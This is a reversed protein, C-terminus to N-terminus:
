RVSSLIVRATLIPQVPSLALTYCASSTTYNGPTTSKQSGTAGVYQSAPFSSVGTNIGKRLWLVGAASFGCKEQRKLWVMSQDTRDSGGGM